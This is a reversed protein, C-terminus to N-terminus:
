FDVDPHCALQQKLLTSDPNYYPQPGQSERDEISMDARIASAYVSGALPLPIKALPTLFLAHWRVEAAFSHFGINGTHTALIALKEFRSLNGADRFYLNKHDCVTRGAAQNNEELFQPIRGNSSQHYLEKYFEPVPLVGGHAFSAAHQVYLRAILYPAEAEPRIFYAKLVPDHSQKRFAVVRNIERSLARRCTDTPDALCHLLLDQQFAIFSITVGPSDSDANLGLSRDYEQERLKFLSYVFNNELPLAYLYWDDFFYRCELAIGNDGPVTLIGRCALIESLSKTVAVFGDATQQLDSDTLCGLTKLVTFPTPSTKNM